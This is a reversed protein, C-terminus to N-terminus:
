GSKAAERQYIEFPYLYSYENAVLLLLHNMFREQGEKRGCGSGEDDDLRAIRLLADGEGSWLGAGGQLRMGVARPPVAPACVGPVIASPAKAVRRSLHGM